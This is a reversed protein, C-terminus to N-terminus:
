DTEDGFVERIARKFDELDDVVRHPVGASEFRSRWVEQDPQVRYGGGSKLEVGLARGSGLALLDPFGKNCYGGGHVNVVVLRRGYAGRAWGICKRQLESERM